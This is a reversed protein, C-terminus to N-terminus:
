TRGAGQCTSVPCLAAPVGMAVLRRLAAGPTALLTRLLAQLWEWPAGAMNRLWSFWSAWTPLHEVSFGRHVRSFARWFSWRNEATNTHAEGRVWEQGHTVTEHEYGLTPVAQYLGYADTYLQAGKPVHHVLLPYVEAHSVHGVPEVLTAKTTRSVIGMLPVRGASTSRGRRYRRGRQKPARGLDKARGHKSTPRDGRRGNGKHAASEYTEDVEV